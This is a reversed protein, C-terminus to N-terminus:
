KAECYGYRCKPTAGGGCDGDGNPCAKCSTKTTAKYEYYCGCPEPPDYAQLGSDTPAVEATRKVKMACQPVTFAAVENDIMTKKDPDSLGARTFYSLVKAVNANAPNGQNDVKAVFHLPGWFPYLGNRVNGKDLAAQSSDPYLGCAAGKHQYALLKVASNGSRNADFYDASLVGIAKNPQTADANHVATLVDGSKGAGPTTGKMKTIDLGILKSLMTYTGSSSPRRFIFNVDNWPDVINTAAGWGYVVFAAEMSIATEKSSPPVVLGFIQASGTFDKEDNPVTINVCSSPFVDSIGVDVVVGNVNPTTCSLEQLNADWYTGTTADPAGTTVDTLGACSGLSQYILRIAPNGTALTQSIQKLMPKAASSGAVYVPTGPLGTNDCTLAFAQESLALVGLFALGGLIQKKM